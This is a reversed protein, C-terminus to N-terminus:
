PSNYKASGETAWWQKWQNLYRSEYKKYEGLAPLWNADQKEEIAALTFVADYRIFFDSDELRRVIM